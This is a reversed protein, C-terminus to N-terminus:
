DIVRRKQIALIDHHGDWALESFLLLRAEALKEVLRASWSPKSVSIGYGEQGPYDAYGYGEESSYGNEIDQWRDAVGYNDYKPGRARAFRGHLSVVVVGDPNLFGVLKRLLHISQSEPLHTLVSGVWILDYTLPAELLDIDIKTVWTLADFETSCFELDAERIDTVSICANPYAARLWRTVRGAGSGFDLFSKPTINALTICARIANLASAGCTLYHTGNGHFMGDTSAINLSVLGYVEKLSFPIQDELVNSIVPM